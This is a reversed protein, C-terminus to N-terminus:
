GDCMAITSTDLWLTSTSLAKETGLHTRSARFDCWECLSNVFIRPVTGLSCLSSKLSIQPSSSKLKAKETGLHTRSARFDCWECLSNVFIRPVTGLSCLSSKLSIQPSSSKLKVLSKSLCFVMPFGIILTGACSSFSVNCSFIISNFGRSSAEPSRLRRLMSIVSPSHGHWQKACVTHYGSCEFSPKTHSTSSVRDIPNGSWRCFTVMKTTLVINANRHISSFHRFIPFRLCCRRSRYVSNIIAPSKLQKLRRALYEGYRHLNPVYPAAYPEERPKSRCQCRPQIHHRFVVHFFMTRLISLEQCLYSRFGELSRQQGMSIRDRRTPFSDTPHRFIVGFRSFRYQLLVKRLVHAQDQVIGKAIILAIILFYAIYKINDFFQMVIKRNSLVSSIKIM